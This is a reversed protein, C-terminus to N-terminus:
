RLSIKLLELVYVISTDSVAFQSSRVAFQTFVRKVQLSVRMTNEDMTESGSKAPFWM